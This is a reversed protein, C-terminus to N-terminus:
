LPSQLNVPMNIGSFELRRTTDVHDSAILRGVLRLTIVNWSRKSVEIEAWIPYDRGADPILDRLQSSEIKTGIWYTSDEDWGDPTLFSVDDADRLVKALTKSFLSFHFPIDGAEIQRWRNNIPDQLYANGGIEVFNLAISIRMAPFSGVAFVEAGLDFDAAGELSSLVIGDGFETTGVEHVMSFRVTNLNETATAAMTRVSEVSIDPAPSEDTCSFSSILVLSIALFCRTPNHKLLYYSRLLSAKM